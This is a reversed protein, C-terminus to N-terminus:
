PLFRYVHREYGDFHDMLFGDGAAIARNEFVVIASDGQDLGEVYLRVNIHRDGSANCCILTRRGDTGDHLSFHIAPDECRVPGPRGVTQVRKSPALLVGSLGDPGTMERAFRAIGEWPGKIQEPDIYRGEDEALFLVGDAGHCVALYGQATVETATLQRGMRRRHEGVHAEVVALVPFSDGLEARARDAKDGIESVPRGAGLPLAVFGLIDAARRWYAFSGAADGRIMVLSPRSPDARRRARHLDAIFELPSALADATQDAEVKLGWALIARDGSATGMADALARLADEESNYQNRIFHSMTDTFFQPIYVLGNARCNELWEPLGAAVRDVYRGEPFVRWDSRWSPEWGLYSVTNLGAKSFVKWSDARVGKTMLGVPFFLAGNVRLPAAVDKADSQPFYGPAPPDIDIPATLVRVYDLALDGAPGPQRPDGFRFRYANEQVALAKGDVAVMQTRWSHDGKGGLFGVPTWTEGGLAFVPVPSLLSDKFRLYVFLRSPPPDFARVRLEPGEAPRLARASIKRQSRRPTTCWWMGKQPYEYRVYQKWDASGWVGSGGILRIEQGPDGDSENGFDHFRTLSAGDAGFVALPGPTWLAILCLAVLAPM